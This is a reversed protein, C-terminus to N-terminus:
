AARKHKIGDATGPLNRRVHSATRAPRRSVQKALAFANAFTTGAHAFADFRSIALRQWRQDLSVSRLLHGATVVPARPEVPRDPRTAQWVFEGRADDGRRGPRRFSAGQAASWVQRSFRAPPERRMHARGYHNRMMRIRSVIGMRQM